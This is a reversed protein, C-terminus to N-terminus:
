HDRESESCHNPKPVRVVGRVQAKGLYLFDGLQHLMAVRRLMILL